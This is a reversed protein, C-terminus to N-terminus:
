AHKAGCHSCHRGRSRNSFLTSVYIAVILGLVFILPLHNSVPHSPQYYNVSKTGDRYTGGHPLSHVSDGVHPLTSRTLSYVVLTLGLGVTLPFIVKTQDPPPTLHIPAGSM